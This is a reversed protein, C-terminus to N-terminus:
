GEVWASSARESAARLEGLLGERRQVLRDHEDFFLVVGRLKARADAYNLSASASRYFPISLSFGLNKERSWGWALAIGGDTWEWAAVPAGLAALADHLDSREPQVELLAEPPPPGNVTERQWSVNLCGTSVLVMALGVLVGAATAPARGAHIM